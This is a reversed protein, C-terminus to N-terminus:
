PSRECAGGNDKNAVYGRICVCAAMGLFPAEQNHALLCSATCGGQARRPRVTGNLCPLCQTGYSHGAFTALDVEEYGAVCTCQSSALLSGSWEWHRGGCSSAQTLRLTRTSAMLSSDLQVFSPGACAALHPSAVTADVFNLLLAVWSWRLLQRQTTTAEEAVATSLFSPYLLYDDDISRLCASVLLEGDVPGVGQIRLAIANVPPASTACEVADDCPLCRLGHTRPPCLCSLPSVAGASLTHGGNACPLPALTGFAPCWRSTPCPMCAFASAFFFHYFGPLCVCDALRVSGLALTTSHDPCPTLTAAACFAGLPCQLCGRKQVEAVDNNDFFFGDLCSCDTAGHARTSNPGCPAERLCPLPLCTTDSVSPFLAYDQPCPTWPLRRSGDANVLLVVV